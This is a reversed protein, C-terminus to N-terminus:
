PRAAPAKLAERARLEAIGADAPFRSHLDDLLERAEETRGQDLIARALNYGADAREPQLTLARRLHREGAAPDGSRAQATGLLYWSRGDLPNRDVAVAALAAAERLRGQGLLIAVLGNLPLTSGPDRKGAEEYERAAEEVRGANLLLDGLDVRNEIGWPEIEVARRLYSAGEETRGLAGLAGGLNANADVSGPDLRLAAEFQVVADATRGADLLAVGLNNRAVPNDRSVAVARSFLTVGDRWCLVQRHAAIALLAPLLLLAIRAPRRRAPALHVVLCAAAAYIGLLPLYTFRDATVQKGAQFIGSLPALAAFYWIFGAALWPQRRRLRYAATALTLLFVGSAAIVGLSFVGGPPAVYLPSLRAPWLTRGLNQALVVAANGLRQPLPYYALPALAAARQQAILTVVGFGLGILAMPIKEAIRSVIRRWGGDALRGLPWGDLVLLLAPATFAMPKAMLAAALGLLAAAHRAPSPRRLHSLWLHLFLLFLAQSLVDKRETIWAVSEVHLPHVAFLAAALLPIGAAGLLRRLLLYFLLAAAAHLIVNTVHYGGASFGWLSADTMLSLWTLPIWFGAHLTSFSWAVNATTLGGLVNPNRYVYDPDDFPIFGFGCTPWYVAAVMFTLIACAVGNQLRTGGPTSGDTTTM